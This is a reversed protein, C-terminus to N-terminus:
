LGGSPGALVSILQERIARPGVSTLHNGSNRFRRKMAETRSDTLGHSGDGCRGWLERRYAGAISTMHEYDYAHTTQVVFSNLNSHRLGLV